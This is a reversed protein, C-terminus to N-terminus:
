VIDYISGMSSNVLRMETWLNSTLMVWARIYVHIDVCLNDAKDKTAKVANRGKHHALIKKVPKNAAALKGFNTEKVKETTFYL